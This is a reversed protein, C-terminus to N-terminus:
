NGELKPKSFKGRCDSKWGITPAPKINDVRIVCDYTKGDVKKFDNAIKPNDIVIVNAIIGALVQAYIM